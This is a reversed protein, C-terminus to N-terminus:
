FIRALFRLEPEDRQVGRARRGPHATDAAADRGSACGVGYEAHRQLGCVVAEVERGAEMTKRRGADVWSQRARDFREGLSGSHLGDHSPEERRLRGPGTTTRSIM